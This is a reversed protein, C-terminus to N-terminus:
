CPKGKLTDEVVFFKGDAKVVTYTYQQRDPRGPDVQSAGKDDLLDVGTVDVCATVKFSRGDKTSTEIRSLTARGRQVLGKEVYSGLIVQWQARAQDRAVSDLAATGQDPNEALEGVVDWFEVVAEGALRKDREAATESTTASSSASPSTTASSPTASATATPTTGDSNNCGGLVVAAALAALVWSGGPWRRSESGM